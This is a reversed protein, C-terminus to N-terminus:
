RGDPDHDAKTRDDHPTPAEDGPQAPLIVLFTAGQGPTSRATIRGHHREVIERCIALGMGTGEYDRRGHLRQFVQFIRDLYIEEFGIGNDEIAIEYWPIGPQGAIIEPGDVARATVRVVPSKDPYHFKLGNGILNQFLQRIQLPDAHIMPLPGLEVNGGTQQILGELDSAVERAVAELDVPVFPASGTAVRSFTLLDNILNRMRAASNLIRELYERGQKGLVPGCKAHLRDGFAQIKRLPEQLDHSAVSAFEELQRNSRQLESTRERVLRELLDAQRRQDDIDTATGIWQVIEGTEDRLPAGRVLHWRYVGDAGRRLRQEVELYGGQEVIRAWQEVTAERDDPHVTQLWGRGKAQEFTLGSYDIWLHSIYHVDGRSDAMWVKHPIAESLLRFREESRRFEEQVRKQDDIDTCTGFWCAIRGSDDRRPIARGLFWRYSGDAARLRYEVEYPEGTETAQEWRAISRAKDDAHLSISWGHGISQERSLGTYDYWGRNFYLHHGDPRTVWVIQPIAEAFTYWQIEDDLPEREGNMYGGIETVVGPERSQGM